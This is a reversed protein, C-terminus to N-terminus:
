KNKRWYMGVYSAVGAVIAVVITYPTTLVDIFPLDRKLCVVLAVLLWTLIANVLAKTINSRTM